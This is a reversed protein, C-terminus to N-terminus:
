PREGLIEETRDQVRIGVHADRRNRWQGTRWRSPQTPTRAAQPTPMPSRSGVSSDGDSSVRAITPRPWRGNSRIPRAHQLQLHLRAALSQRHDGRHRPGSRLGGGVAHPRAAGFRGSSPKSRRTSCIRADSGISSRGHNERHARADPRPAAGDAGTADQVGQLRRHTVPEPLQVDPPLRGPATINRSASSAFATWDRIFVSTYVIPAKIGYALAERQKAPMEPCLYPIIFNWCALVRAAAFASPRAAKSM